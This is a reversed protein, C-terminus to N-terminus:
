RPVISTALPDSGGRGGSTADLNGSGGDDFAGGAAGQAAALEAAKRREEEEEQLRREEAVADLRREAAAQNEVLSAEAELLRAEANLLNIEANIENQDRTFGAVTAESIAEVVGVPVSALGVIESNRDVTVTEPMGDVWAITTNQNAFVGAPQQIVLPPQNNPLDLIEDIIVRDAVTVALRHPVTARYCLGSGCAGRFDDATLMPSSSVPNEGRELEPMLSPDDSVLISIPPNDQGTLDTLFLCDNLLNRDEIIDPPILFEGSEEDIKFQCDQAIFADLARTLSANARRVSEPNVPDFVAKGIFIDARRLFGPGSELSVVSRAFQKAFEAGRGESLARSDSNLLRSSPNVSVALKNDAAIARSLKAVYSFNTDGVVTETFRPFVFGDLSSKYLEITVLTKPLYYQVGSNAGGEASRDMQSGLSTCGTAVLCLASTAFVDRHRIRSGM